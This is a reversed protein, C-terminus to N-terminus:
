IWRKMVVLPLERQLGKSFRWTMEKREFGFKEYLRLAANRPHVEIYILKRGHKKFRVLANELLLGGIGRGQMAPIVWLGVILSSYPEIMCVGMIKGHLEAVTTSHHYGFADSNAMAVVRDYYGPCDHSGPELRNIVAWYAAAQIAAIAEIDAETAPRLKVPFDSPPPVLVLM